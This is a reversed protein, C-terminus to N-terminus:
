ALGFLYPHLIQCAGGRNSFATLFEHPYKDPMAVNRMREDQEARSGKRKREEKGDIDQQFCPTASSSGLQYEPICKEESGVARTASRRVVRGAGTM